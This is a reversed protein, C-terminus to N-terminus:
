TQNDWGTGDVHAALSPLLFLLFLFNEEPCPIEGTHESDFPKLGHPQRTQVALLGQGILPHNMKGQDLEHRLVELEQRNGVLLWHQRRGQQSSAWIQAIGSTVSVGAMMPIVFGRFTRPDEVGFEWALVVVVCMLVFLGV